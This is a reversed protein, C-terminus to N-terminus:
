IYSLTIWYSSLCQAPGEGAASPAPIIHRYSWLLVLTTIEYFSCLSQCWTEYQLNRRAFLKSALATCCGSLSFPLCVIGRFASVISSLYVLCQELLLSRQSMLLLSFFGESPIKFVVVEWLLVHMHVVHM